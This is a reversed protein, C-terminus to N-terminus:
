HDKLRLTKITRCYRDLSAGRDLAASGNTRNLAASGNAGDLAAGGDSGDLEVWM